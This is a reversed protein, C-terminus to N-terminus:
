GETQNFTPLASHDSDETTASALELVAEGGLPAGLM